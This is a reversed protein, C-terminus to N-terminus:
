IVIRFPLLVPAVIRAYYVVEAQEMVKITFVDYNAQRTVILVVESFHIRIVEFIPAFPKIM